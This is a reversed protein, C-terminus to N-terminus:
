LPQNFGGVLLPKDYNDRHHGFFPPHMGNFFVCFDLTKTNRMGYIGHIGM